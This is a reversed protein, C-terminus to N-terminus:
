ESNHHFVYISIIEKKGDNWESLIVFKIIAGYFRISNEGWKILHWVNMIHYFFYVRKPKMGVVKNYMRICFCWNFTFFDWIHVFYQFEDRRISPIFIIVFCKRQTYVIIYIFEVSRGTIKWCFVSIFTCVSFILELSVCANQASQYCLLLALSTSKM